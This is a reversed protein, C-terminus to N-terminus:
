FGFVFRKALARAITFITKERDKAELKLECEQIVELGQNRRKMVGAGTVEVGAFLIPVAFYYEDCYTLYERWKTDRRFDEQSAKAEIICIRGRENYGIVDFRHGEVELETVAVYGRDYLWRLALSQLEGHTKMDKASLRDSLEVAEMFSEPGKRRLTRIEKEIEGRKQHLEELQKEQEEMQKKLSEQILGQANRYEARPPPAYFSKVHHPDYRVRWGRKMRKEADQALTDVDEVFYVYRDEDYQIIGKKKLRRQWQYDLRKALCLKGQHVGLHDALFDKVEDPYPKLKLFSLKEEIAARTKMLEEIQEQIQKEMEELHSLRRGVEKVMEKIRNRKEELAAPMKALDSRKISSDISELIESLGNWDEERVLSHLVLAKLGLDCLKQYLRDSLHQRSAQRMKNLRSLKKAQDRSLGLNMLAALNGGQQLIELAQISKPDTGTIM